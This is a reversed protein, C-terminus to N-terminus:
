PSTPFIFSVEGDCPSYLTHGLPEIVVGDGLVKNAFTQENAQSIHAVEGKVPCFLRVGNKMQDIEKAEQKVREKAVAENTVKTDNM